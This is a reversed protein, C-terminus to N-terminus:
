IIRITGREGAGHLFLMLPWKKGAESEYGKPLYVLYNLDTKRTVSFEFKKAILNKSEALEGGNAGPLCAALAVMVTATHFLNRNPM